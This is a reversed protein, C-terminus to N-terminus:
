SNEDLDSSKITRTEKVIELRNEVAETKVQNETEVKKKPVGFQVKRVTANVSQM